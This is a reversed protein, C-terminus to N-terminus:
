KKSKKRHEKEREYQKSERGEEGQIEAILRKYKKEYAADREKKEKLSERAIFNADKRLERMAGKRERKHEAKLKSSEARERDPDYHKDPNFSEEFKPISTKIALPKHHHLELPRRSLRAQNLLLTLKTSTRTVCATTSRPLHERCAKSGLHKLVKLAPSFTEPFGSKETWVDAAADFLKISTELLAAKLQNEDEPSLYQISCDMLTLMRTKQEPLADLRSDFKPEHYPFNAPVNGMKTPGLACLTNLLFAGVEPVYRKSFNQYQIALTALYMGTAYDSLNQPIRQGLFRGISLMAPTVAQHFHDSTPFITSIATLLVLDGRTPALARTEHLEGLHKRFANATGIPYTKALSHIHRIVQELVDFPPLEPQNALYSVHDVLAVTFKTLKGKNEAKLKPHYLARIRRVVTPLDQIDTSKTIELLMSHDEPCPFTYALNGNVGNNTPLDRDPIPANAGTLFEPRKAEETTLLGDLFDDAPEDEGDDGNESASEDESIDADSGSAILDDDLVFVDEDEVGLEENTPRSPKAQIGAGLGFEDVDEEYVDEDGEPAQANPKAEEEEEQKGEMRRLRRKEMDQLKRAEDALREEDTKSRETPVSKKDQALQRLRLDYEKDFKIKDTGNLLAARDPNMGAVEAPRPAPPRRVGRLLAQIEAMDKDLEERIDEDDDKGQQREYKHLKSKAILEKMVEQKSKKREPLDEADEDESAGADSGRRRKLTQREEDSPHDEADSLELDDEEFDDAFDPGDLSLSKGMHTLGLGDGYDDDELDFASSNKHRSQIEQTFRELMKDEPAMSSDNEGFRRDMIGGVKNRRQMEVLLTRRRNEEGLGKTVGPRNKVSKSGSAGGVTRSNTVEFKPGRANTKIEFPNFQERIGTLAATRNVRKDKNTGNQANKRKQSKSQQPGVIGQERLSAKLRKLQSPPM